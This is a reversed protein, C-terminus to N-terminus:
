VRDPNGGAAISATPSAANPWYGACYFHRGALGTDLEGAYTFFDPEHHQEGQNSTM